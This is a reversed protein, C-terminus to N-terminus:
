NQISGMNKPQPNDKGFKEIMMSYEHPSSSRSRLIQLKSPTVPADDTAFKVGGEIQNFFKEIPLNVNYPMKMKAINAELDITHINTYTTSLHTHFQLATINTYGIHRNRLARVFTEDVAGPLLQKLAKDM